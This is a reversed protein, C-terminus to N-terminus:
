LPAGGPKSTGILSQKTKDWRVMVLWNIGIGRQPIAKFDYQGNAGIWGQLGAIYDRIQQPKADFGLHRFAELVLMAPDWALSEGEDPRIGAANFADLYGGVYKRFAANPFANPAAWPPAMMYLNDPMFSQYGILQAYNLNGASTILPIDLGGQVSERLLTGFPTGVTWLIAAQAESAKIRAIQAAVTIDNTNFHERDVLSVAGHNEPANVAADISREADQGTADTSTMLAIKRWGRERLYRITAVIYDATSISASFMYTGADPHIGPSFCYVVPGNTVLPTEAGCGSVASSGLIVPVNKAMTENLLQVTNQPISQDDQVVFHIQRGRIGGSKNVVSEIVALASAEEKGLFASAGTLPAIAYIDYTDASGAALPALALLAAFASAGAARMM